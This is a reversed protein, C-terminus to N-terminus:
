LWYCSNRKSFSVVPFNDVSGNLEWQLLPWKKLPWHDTERFSFVGLCVEKKVVETASHDLASVRLRAVPNSTSPKSPEFRPAPNSFWPSSKRVSSKREQIPMSIFIHRSTICFLNWRVIKFFICRFMGGEATRAQIYVSPPDVRTTNVKRVYVTINYLTYAKLNTFKYDNSRVWTGNIWDKTGVECLSPLFEFSDAKDDHMSWHIQLGTEDVKKELGLREVQFM